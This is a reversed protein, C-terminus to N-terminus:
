AVLAFRSYSADFEKFGTASNKLSVSDLYLGGATQGFADASNTITCAAFFTHAMVGTSGSVQGSLKVTTMVTGRAMGIRAGQYNVAPADFEPKCDLDFKQANIGTEASALGFIFSAIATGILTAM